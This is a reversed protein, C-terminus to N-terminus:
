RLCDWIVWRKFQVLHEWRNLAKDYRRAIIRGAHQQEDISCLVRVSCGILSAASLLYSFESEVYEALYNPKWEDFPVVRQQICALWRLYEDRNTLNSKVFDEMHSAFYCRLNLTSGLPDCIPCYWDGDPVTTVLPKLCFMHIEHKCGRGDCLLILDESDSGGCVACTTSAASFPLVPFHEAM